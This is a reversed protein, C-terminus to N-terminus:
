LTHATLPLIMIDVSSIEKNELNVLAPSVGGDQIDESRDRVIFLTLSEAPYNYDVFVVNRIWRLSLRSIDLVLGPTLAPCPSILVVSHETIVAPHIRFQSFGCGVGM